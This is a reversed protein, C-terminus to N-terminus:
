CDDAQFFVDYGENWHRYALTGKAYPNSLRSRGAIAAELGDDIIVCSNNVDERQNTEDIVDPSALKKVLQGFLRATKYSLRDLLNKNWDSSPAM